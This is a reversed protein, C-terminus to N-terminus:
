IHCFTSLVNNDFISQEPKTKLRSVLKKNRRMKMEHNLVLIQVNQFKIFVPLMIRDVIDELKNKSPFFTHVNTM